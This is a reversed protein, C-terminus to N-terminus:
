KKKGTYTEIRDQAYEVNGARWPDEGKVVRRYLPVAHTPDHLRIDYVVAEQFRAPETIFRDWQWAREYWKVARTNENFYEKYIEGIYFASLAIKTSTPYKQILERFLAVAQREKEYDTTVFTRLIGKGDNYLKIARAYLADAEPIVATPQLEPGPVEGEIFYSYQRVPGFRAKVNEILRAKFSDHKEPSRYYELLRDLSGLWETRAALSEEVLLREDASTLSEGQPPTVEVGQFRFVQAAELNKLENDAAAMRDMNGVKFYYDKLVTLRYRYDARATEATTVGAVEVPDDAQITVVQVAKGDPTKIPDPPTNCGALVCAGCGFAALSWAFFKNM